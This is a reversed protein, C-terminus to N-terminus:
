VKGRGMGEHKPLAEDDYDSFADVIFEEPMREDNGKNKYTNMAANIGAKISKIEDELKERTGEYTGQAYKKCLAFLQEAKVTINDATSRANTILKDNAELAKKLYKDYERRIDSRLVKGTKPAFLLALISGAIGGILIGALFPYEKKM